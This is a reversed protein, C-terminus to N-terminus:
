IKRKEMQIKLWCDLNIGFFNLLYQQFLPDLKWFTDSNMAHNTEFDQLLLTRAHAEATNDKWPEPWNKYGKM